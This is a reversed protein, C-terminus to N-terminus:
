PAAARLGAVDGAEIAPIANEIAKTPWDWWRLGLLTEIDQETYRMRIVEAPNGGVIAYDPIKGRVVANAAVIVGNGLEAGPLLTARRGIWCDNGVITDHGRPLDSRYSAFRPPDFIAFPYTSVGSMPHNATATIFEVGQAIQCFRGIILREPAGQFLYPALTEAYDQPLRRDHYYTWDGIEINPHDIVQNLFVTAPDHSGDPFLLPNRRKPDPLAFPM